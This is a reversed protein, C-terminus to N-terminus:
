RGEILGTYEQSIGALSAEWEITSTFIHSLTFVLQKMDPRLCPDEEVCQQALKAMKYLLDSPYVNELYPDVVDRLKDISTPSSSTLARLMVSLLSRREPTRSEFVKGKSIAQQGTILEFLVVGFAYVDSKSTAQGDRLYEPALYGFTGVVRTVCSEGDGTQEVLKSLGFDAVKARFNKDLLINSTKVDRHVYHSKTHDHIYELGRAADLAIQVRIIWTLPVFGKNMPDHLRDSVSKNEAYEYVLFLEEKSSSYGILEVLNTHHVNCLVKLEAIFEKTKSAKMRKIAVEQDRLIGFYVTGYAGKGVMNSEKFNDTADIVEKHSFVIPKEIDFVVATVDKSLTNQCTSTDSAYTKTQNLPKETIICSCFEMSFWPKENNQDYKSGASGNKSAASKYASRLYLRLGISTAVIIFTGGVTGVVIGILMGAGGKPALNPSHDGPVANPAPM